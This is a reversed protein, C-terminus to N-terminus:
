SRWLPGMPSAYEDGPDRARDRAPVDIIDLGTGHRAIIRLGHEAEMVRRTIQATRVMQCGRVEQCMVDEEISTGVKVSIGHETLYDIGEQVIRPIYITPDM